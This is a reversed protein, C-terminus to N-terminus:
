ALSRWIDEAQKKTKIITGSNDIVFDALRAKARLPIQSSIRRLIDPKTLSTKMKVRKIQVDRKVKVVILKDALNIFGSEVLLPVDLVIVQSKSKKIRSKIEKFVEPHIINNLKKLLEKNNGFVIGGLKVRDIIKGRGLIKAGFAKIAKSYCKGGPAICRHSLKDADIVEAGFTKFFVAVTSKGSGLGGTVGLIIKKGRDRACPGPKNIKQRPM